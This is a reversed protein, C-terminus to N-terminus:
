IEGNEVTRKQIIKECYDCVKDVKAKTDVASFIKFGLKHLKDQVYVQRKREKEGRKKLEAFVVTGGYLFIIRDPLGTFAPVEFKLCLGKKGLIRKIKRIFYQEVDSELEFM